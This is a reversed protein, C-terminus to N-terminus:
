ARLRILPPFDLESRPRYPMAAALDLVQALIRGAHEDAVSGHAAGLQLEMGAAGAIRSLAAVSPQRRRHEYANLVSRDLGARRALEAQSLGSRARIQTVLEGAVVEHQASM